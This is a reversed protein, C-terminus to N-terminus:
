VGPTSTPPRLDTDPAAEPVTEVEVDSGGGGGGDSCADFEGGDCAAPILYQQASYDPEEDSDFDECLTEDLPEGGAKVHWYEMRRHRLEAHCNDLKRTWRDIERLLQKVAKNGSNRMREVDLAEGAVDVGGAVSSLKAKRLSERRRLTEAAATKEAAVRARHAARVRGATTEERYPVGYTYRVRVGNANRLSFASAGSGRTAVSGLASAAAGSGGGGDSTSASTSSSADHAAPPPTRTSPLAPLRTPPALSKTYLSRVESLKEWTAPAACSGADDSMSGGKDWRGGCAREGGGGQWCDKSPLVGTTDEDHQMPLFSYVAM